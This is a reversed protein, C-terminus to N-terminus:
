FEQVFASKSTRMQVGLGKENSIQPSTIMDSLYPQKDANMRRRGRNSGQYRLFLLMTALTTICYLLKLHTQLSSCSKRYENPEREDNTIM